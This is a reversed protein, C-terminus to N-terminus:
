KYSYIIVDRTDKRDVKTNGKEEMDRTDISHIAVYSIAANM